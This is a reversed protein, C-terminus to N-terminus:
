SIERPATIRDIKAVPEKNGSVSTPLMFEKTSELTSPKEAPLAPQFICSSSSTFFVESSLAFPQSVFLIFSHPLNERLHVPKCLYLFCQFSNKSNTFPTVSLIGSVGSVDRLLPFQSKHLLVTSGPSCGVFLHHHSLPLAVLDASSRSVQSAPHSSSDRRTLFVWASAVCPWSPM